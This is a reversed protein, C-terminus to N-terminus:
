KPLDKYEQSYNELIKDMGAQLQQMPSLKLIEKNDKRFKEEAKKALIDTYKKVEVYSGLEKLKQDYHESCLKAYYANPFDTVNTYDEYKHGNCDYCWYTLGTIDEQGIGHTSIRITM